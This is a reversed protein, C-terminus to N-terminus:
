SVPLQYNVQLKDLNTTQEILILNDKKLKKRKEKETEITAKQTLNKRNEEDLFALQTKL